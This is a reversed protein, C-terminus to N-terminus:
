CKSAVIFLEDLVAETLGFVKAMESVLVSDREVTSAYEWEIHAEENEMSAIAANVQTLLGKRSLALRAQRMTITKPIFTPAAQIVWTQQWEGNENLTPIGETAVEGEGVTPTTPLVPAYGFPLVHYPELPQPFSTLPNEQRIQWDSIPYRNDKIYNTM